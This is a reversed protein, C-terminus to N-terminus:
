EESVKAADKQAEDFVQQLPSKGMEKWAQSNRDFYQVRGSNSETRFLLGGMIKTEWRQVKALEGQYRTREVNSGHFEGHSFAILYITVACALMWLANATRPNVM